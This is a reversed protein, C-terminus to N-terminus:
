KELIPWGWRGDRLTLPWEQGIQTLSYGVAEVRVRFTQGRSRERVSVFSGSRASLQKGVVDGEVRYPQGNSLVGNSLMLLAFLVSGLASGRILSTFGLTRFTQWFISWDKIRVGAGVGFWSGHVFAVVITVTMCPVVLAWWQEQSVQFSHTAGFSVSVVLVAVVLRWHKSFELRPRPWRM